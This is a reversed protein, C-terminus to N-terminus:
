KSLLDLLMQALNKHFFFMVLGIILPSPEVIFAIIGLVISASFALYLGYVTLLLLSAWLGFVLFVGLVPIAMLAGMLAKM